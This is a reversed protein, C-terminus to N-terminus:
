QWQDEGTTSTRDQEQFPEVQSFAQYYAGALEEDNISGPNQSLGSGLQIGIWVAAAIGLSTLAWRYWPARGEARHPWDEAHARIRAPLFPDPSLHALFTLSKADLLREAQDYSHRCLDCGQLHSELERHRVRSM